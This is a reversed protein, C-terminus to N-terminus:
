LKAPPAAGGQAVGSEVEERRYEAAWDAEYDAGRARWPLNVARTLKYRPRSERPTAWADRLTRPIPRRGWWSPPRHASFCDYWALSLTRREATRNRGQRTRSSRATRAVTLLRVGAHRGHPPALSAATASVASHLLRADGIILDGARM